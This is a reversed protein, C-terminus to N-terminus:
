GLTRRPSWDPSRHILRRLAFAIPGIVRPTFCMGFELITPDGAFSILRNLDADSLEPLPLTTSDYETYSDMFQRWFLDCHSKSGVKIAPTPKM